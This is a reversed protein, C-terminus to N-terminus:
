FLTSKIGCAFIWENMFAVWDPADIRGFPDSRDHIPKSVALYLPYKIRSFELGYILAGSWTKHGPDPIPAYTHVAPDPIWAVGLPASCTLGFSHVFGEEGRYAYYGGLMLSPPTYAGLDSEGYPKVRYYFRENATRDSYDQYYEELMANKKTVPHMNFAHSYSADVKFFGSEVDITKSLQLTASYVGSGMQFDVPLFQLNSEPGRKIDYQGTPLTLSLQMRYTGSFGISRSLDFTVDGMGGTTRDLEEQNTQYQVAGSKSMIPVSVGADMTWTPKFSFRPTTSFSAFNQRITYRSIIEVDILGGQVGNGLWQIGDGVSGSGSAGCGGITNWPTPSPFPLVTAVDPLFVQTAPLERCLDIAQKNHLRISAFFAAAVVALLVPICLWINRMLLARKKNMM